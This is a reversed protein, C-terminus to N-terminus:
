PDDGRGAKSNIVPVRIAAYLLLPCPKPAHSARPQSGAMKGVLSPNKFLLSFHLQSQFRKRAGGFMVAGQEKIHHRAHEVDALAHSSSFADRCASSSPSRLSARSRADPLPTPAPGPICRAESPSPANSDCCSPTPETGLQAPM